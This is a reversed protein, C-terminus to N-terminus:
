YCLCINCSASLLSERRRDIEKTYSNFKIKRPDTATAGNRGNEKELQSSFTRRGTVTARHIDKMNGAKCKHLQLGREAAPTQPLPEPCYKCVVILFDNWLAWKCDHSKEVIRIILFFFPAWVSYSKNFDQIYFKYQAQARSNNKKWKRCVNGQTTCYSM